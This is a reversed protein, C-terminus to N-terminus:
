HHWVGCTQLLLRGHCRCHSGVTPKCSWRVSGHWGFSRSPVSLIHGIPPLIPQIWLLNLTPTLDKEHFWLTLFPPTSPSLEIYKRSAECLSLVPRSHSQCAGSAHQCMVTLFVGWSNPKVWKQTTREESKKSRLSVITILWSYPHAQGHWTVEGAVAMSRRGWSGILKSNFDMSQYLEIGSQFFHQRWSLESFTNMYTDDDVSSGMDFRDLASILLNYSKNEQYTFCANYLMVIFITVPIICNVNDFCRHIYKTENLSTYCSYAGHLTVHPGRWTAYDFRTIFNIGAVAVLEWLAGWSSGSLEWLARLKSAFYEQFHVYM